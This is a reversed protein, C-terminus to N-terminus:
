TGYKYSRENKSLPLIMFKLETHTKRISYAKYPGYLLFLWDHQFNHFFLLNGNM